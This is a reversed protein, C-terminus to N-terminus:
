QAEWLEVPQVISVRPDCWLGIGEDTWQGCLEVVAETTITRDRLMDAPVVWVSGFSRLPFPGAQTYQPSYPPQATFCAGSMDRYAWTDYFQFRGGLQIVPWGAMPKGDGAALLEDAVNDPSVLDSEHLMAYDALPDLQHFLMSASASGRARRTAADEGVIGTDVNLVRVLGDGVMRAAHSRLVEATQDTCDGVGWLWSVEHDAATKHLLHNARKILHSTADNRWLSLVQIM